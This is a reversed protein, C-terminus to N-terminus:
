QTEGPGPYPVVCGSAKDACNYQCTYWKNLEIYFLANFEFQGGPRNYQIDAPPTVTPNLQASYLDSICTFHFWGDDSRFVHDLWCVETGDDWLQASM